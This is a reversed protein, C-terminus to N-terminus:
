PRRRNPRFALPDGALSNRVQGCGTCTEIREIQSWWGEGGRMYQVTIRAPHENLACWIRRLLLRM